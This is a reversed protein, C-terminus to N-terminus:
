SQVELAARGDALRMVMVQAALVEADDELVKLGAVGELQFHIIPRHRRGDTEAGALLEITV